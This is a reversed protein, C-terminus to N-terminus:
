TMCILHALGAQIDVRWTDVLGLFYSPSGSAWYNHPFLFVQLALDFSSSSSSPSSSAKLIRLYITYGMKSWGSSILNYLTDSLFLTAAAAPPGKGGRKIGYPCLPCIYVPLSIICGRFCAEPCLVARISITHAVLFRFLVVGFFFLDLM